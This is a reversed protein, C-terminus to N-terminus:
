IQNKQEIQLKGGELENIQNNHSFVCNLLRCLVTSVHLASCDRMAMRFLHKLCKVLIVRELAIKM